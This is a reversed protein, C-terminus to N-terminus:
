KLRPFLIYFCIKPPFILYEKENDSKTMNFVLTKYWTIRMRMHAYRPLFHYKKPFNQSRVLHISQFWNRVGYFNMILPVRGLSLLLM